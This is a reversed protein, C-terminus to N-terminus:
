RGPKLEYLGHGGKSFLLTTNEKFFRGLLDKEEANFNNNAWKNFMDYWILLHTIGKKSLDSSIMNRNKISHILISYDFLMERDSYYSRNGLFFCLIKADAPLKENAYKIAAYEPRYKEIYKDRGIDGRLYEVPNVIRFQQLVYIGNFSIIVAFFFFLCFLLIKDSKISIRATLLSFTNHLGMVSLMVLPPIVPSIYRIRMDTQAFAFLVFLISFSLLIKKELSILSSDQKVRFFAFFPLIFLFPSLKGDFYKPNNDEGEFFIRIPILITQALSENFLIRRVAFHSLERGRNDKVPKTILDDGYDQEMSVPEANIRNFFGQYLPYVPNKTWVYNRIM